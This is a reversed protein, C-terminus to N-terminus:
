GATSECYRRILEQQTGNKAARRGMLWSLPRILNFFLGPARMDSLHAVVCLHTFNKPTSREDTLGDAALGYMIQLAQEFGTHGPHLEVKFTIEHDEPNFFGHLEGKDVTHSKGPKLIMTKDKGLKIGLDGDIATFTESYTLHYHLENGGGPQLTIKLETVDGGTEEATKEFTVKDKIVPNEITRKM